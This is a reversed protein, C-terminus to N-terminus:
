NLRFFIKNKGLSGIMRKNFILFSRNKKHFFFPIIKKPIICWRNKKYFDVIKKQCYLISIIKKRKIFNNIIKILKSGYKLSRYKKDIIITDLLFFNSEKTKVRYKRKRLLTYGIMKKGLFFLFNYDKPQVNKKFWKRQSPLGYKWFTNKINLINKLETPSLRCTEKIIIRTKEM